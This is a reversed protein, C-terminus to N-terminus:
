VSAAMLAGHETSALPLTPSYKLNQLHDCIAVLEAKESETLRLLFDEPFRQRNRGARENLRKTTVGYLGALDHDLM